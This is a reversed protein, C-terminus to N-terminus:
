RRSSSRRPHADFLLACVQSTGTVQGDYRRRRLLSGGNETGSRWNKRLAGRREAAL